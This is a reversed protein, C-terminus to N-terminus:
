TARTQTDLPQGILARRLILNQREEDAEIFSTNAWFKPYAM